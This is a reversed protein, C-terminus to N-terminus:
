EFLHGCDTVRNQMGGQIHDIGNNAGVADQTVCYVGTPGSVRTVRRGDALTREVMGPAPGAAAAIGKELRRQVSDPARQPQDQTPFARRLERDIGGVARRADLMLSGRPEAPPSPSIAQGAGPASPTIDSREPRAEVEKRQARQAPAAPM